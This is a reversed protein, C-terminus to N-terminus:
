NPNGGVSKPQMYFYSIALLVLLIGAKLPAAAPDGVATHAIIASVLAITFGAYAFRKAQLPLGPILLVIAGVGKAIGLEIRFYDPFGLHQIAGVMNDTLVLNYASMLMMGCFILTAVWYVVKESKKMVQFNVKLTIVAPFSM